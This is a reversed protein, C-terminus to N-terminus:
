AIHHPTPMIAKDKIPTKLYLCIGFRAVVIPKTNITIPTIM